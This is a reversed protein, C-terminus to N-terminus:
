VLLAQGDFETEKCSQEEPGIGMITMAEATSRFETGDDVGTLPIRGGSLFRYNRIDDL